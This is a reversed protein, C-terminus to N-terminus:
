DRPDLTGAPVLDTRTAQFQQWADASTATQLGAAVAGAGATHGAEFITDFHPSTWFPKRGESAAHVGDHFGWNFRVQDDFQAIVTTSKRTM